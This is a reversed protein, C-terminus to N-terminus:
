IKEDLREVSPPLIFGYPFGSVVTGNGKSNLSEKLSKSKSKSPPPSRSTSRSKSKTKDDESDSKDLSSKSLVPKVNSNFDLFFKFEQKFAQIYSIKAKRSVKLVYLLYEFIVFLFALITGYITVWFCGEM